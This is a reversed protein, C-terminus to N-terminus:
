IPKIKVEFSVDPKYAQYIIIKSNKATVAEIIEDKCKPLMECGLIVEKMLYNELHMAKNAGGIFIFRFEKEYRWDFFKYKMIEEFLIANDPFKSPKIEPYDERYIVPILRIPTNYVMDQYNFFEILKNTDYGVSFGQHASAYHSWLLPSNYAGATTFVGQKASVYEMNSRLHSPGNARLVRMREQFRANREDISLSPELRGIMEDFAIRNFDDSELDHRLTIGRDFPDNFKLPSSFYIENHTIIKKHHVDEWDRFKYLVPPLESNSDKQDTM